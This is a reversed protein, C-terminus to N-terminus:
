KDKQEKLKYHTEMPECFEYQTQQCLKDVLYERGITWGAGFLGVVVLTIFVFLFVGFWFDEIDM